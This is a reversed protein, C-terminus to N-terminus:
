NVQRVITAKTKKDGCCPVAKKAKTTVSTTKANASASAKKTKKVPKMAPVDYGSEISGDNNLKGVSWPKTNSSPTTM